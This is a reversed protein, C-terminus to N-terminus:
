VNSVLRQSGRKARGEAAFRRDTIMKCSSVDPLVIALQVQIGRMGLHQSQQSFAFCNMTGSAPLGKGKSTM